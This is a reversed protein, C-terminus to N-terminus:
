TKKRRVRTRPSPTRRTRQGRGAPWLVPELYALFRLTAGANEAVLTRSHEGAQKRKQSEQSLSRLIRYMEQQDNVVFGGGRKALAVAEQSNGHKPGYLVPIGYVAPELV